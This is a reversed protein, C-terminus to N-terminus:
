ASVEACQDQSIEDALPEIKKLWVTPCWRLRSTGKVIAISTGLRVITGCDPIYFTDPSVVFDSIECVIGLFCGCCDRAVIALDGPQLEIGM